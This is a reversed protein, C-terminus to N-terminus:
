TSLFHTMWVVLAFSLLVLMKFIQIFLSILGGSM